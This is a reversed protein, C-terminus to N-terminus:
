FRPTGPSQWSGSPETAAALVALLGSTDGNRAYLEEAERKKHQFVDLQLQQQVMRDVWESNVDDIHSSQKRSPPPSILRFNPNRHPMPGSNGTATVDSCISVQDDEPASSMSLPTDPIEPPSFARPVLGNQVWGELQLQSPIGAHSTLFATKQRGRATIQPLRPVMQPPIARPLPRDIAHIKEANKVIRQAWALDGSFSILAKGAVLLHRTTFNPYPLHLRWTLKIYCSGSLALAELEKLSQGTVQAVLVTTIANLGGPDHTSPKVPFELSNNPFQLQDYSSLSLIVIDFNITEQQAGHQRQLPSSQSM